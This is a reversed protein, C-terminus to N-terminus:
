CAPERLQHGPPHAWVLCEVEEGLIFVKDDRAMEEDLAGNIADRVTMQSRWRQSDPLTLRTESPVHAISGSACFAWRLTYRQPQMAGLQTLYHTASHWRRLLLLASNNVSRNAGGLLPWWVVRSGWVKRQQLIGRLATLM